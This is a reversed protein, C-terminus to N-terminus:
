AAQRDNNNELTSIKKAIRKVIEADDGESQERIVSRLVFRQCNAGYRGVRGLAQIFARKTKLRKAILLSIGRPDETTYDIGRMHEEDVILM